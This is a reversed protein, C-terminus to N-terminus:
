RIWKTVVYILMYIYPLVFLFAAFGSGTVSRDTNVFYAAIFVLDLLILCEILNVTWKNYPHIRSTILLIFIACLTLAFQLFCCFFLLWRKYCSNMSNTAFDNTVMRYSSLISSNLLEIHHLFCKKAKIRGRLIREYIHSDRRFGDRNACCNFDM